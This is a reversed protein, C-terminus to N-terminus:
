SRSFERLNALYKPDMTIDSPFSMSKNMKRKAVAASGPDAPVQM